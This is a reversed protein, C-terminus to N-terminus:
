PGSYTIHLTPALGTDGYSDAGDYSEAERRGSGSVIV